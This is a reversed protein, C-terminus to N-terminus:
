RYGAYPYDAAYRSLGRSQALLSNSYIRAGGTALEGAAALYSRNAADNGARRAAEGAYSTGAAGARELTAGYEYGRAREEGQYLATMARFESEGTINAAIYPDLSGGGSAASIAQARSGVYRGRRAEEIAARQAAAREQGAQSELNLAQAGQLQARYQAARQQAEGAAKQAAGQQLQGYGGILTSAATLANGITFISPAAAAAAGYIGAAGAGASAAGTAAAATLADAAGASAALFAAESVGFDFPM